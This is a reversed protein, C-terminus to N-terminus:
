SPLADQQLPLTQTSKSSTDEMQVSSVGIRVIRYQKKIIEGEAAVIVEEGDLFFAKKEGDSRKTSYGYYKLSIPAAPPTTPQPIVPPAPHGNDTPNTNPAAGDPHLPDVKPINKTILTPPPEPPPQEIKFINRKGGETEIAQVKTLLSLHITPDIKSPDDIPYLKWESGGVTTVGYPNRREKAKSAASSSLLAAPDAAAAPRTPASPTDPSNMWYVLGGVVVLGGLIYVKKRDAGLKM